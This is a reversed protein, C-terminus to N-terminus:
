KESLLIHDVSCAPFKNGKRLYCLDKDSKYNGKVSFNKKINFSNIFLNQTLETYYKTDTTINTDAAFIIPYSKEKFISNVKKAAGMLNKRKNDFHSTAFIFRKKSKIEELLVWHAQRPLAFSWGFNFSSKPGLWFQHKELLKFKQKDYLIAPDAYSILGYDSAIYNYNTNKILEKVQSISRLEQLAILEPKHRQIVNNINELRKAYKFFDSGNCFDCMTNFTMVQLAFSSSSFFLSFFYVLRM